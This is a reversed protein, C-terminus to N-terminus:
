LPVEKQLLKRIRHIRARVASETLEYRMGIEAATELLLYHRLFIEGDPPSLARIYDALVSGLVEQELFVSDEADGDFLPVEARRRLYRWRDIALNRSTTIVFGRLTDSSLAEGVQWLKILTDAAVEEIDSQRGPLVRRAIAAALPAYRATLGTLAKEPDQSLLELLEHDTM